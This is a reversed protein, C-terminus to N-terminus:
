FGVLKNSFDIPFMAVNIYNLTGNDNIKVLLAPNGYKDYEFPNTWDTNETLFTTPNGQSDLINYTCDAAYKQTNYLATNTLYQINEVTFPDATERIYGNHYIDSLDFQARWALNQYDVMGQLNANLKGSVVLNESVSVNTTLVGNAAVSNYTVVGSM